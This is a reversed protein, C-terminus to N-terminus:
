FKIDKQESVYLLCSYFDYTIHSIFAFICKFIFIKFGRDKIDYKDSLYFSFYPLVRIVFSGKSTIKLDLISEFSFCINYSLIIFVAYVIINIDYFIYVFSPIFFM